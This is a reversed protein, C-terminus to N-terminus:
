SRTGIEKPQQKSTFSASLLNESLTAIKTLFGTAAMKKKAKSPKKKKRLKLNRM